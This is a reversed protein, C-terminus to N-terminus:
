LHSDLGGGQGSGPCFLALSLPYAEGHFKIAVGFGSRLLRSSRSLTAYAYGFFM